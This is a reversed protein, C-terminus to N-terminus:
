NRENTQMESNAMDLDRIGLGAAVAWESHPSNGDFLPGVKTLDIGRLPQSSRVEIGLHGTLAKVLNTEYSEGGSLIA